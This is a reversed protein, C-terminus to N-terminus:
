HPPRLPPNWAEQCHPKCTWALRAIGISPITVAVALILYALRREMPRDLGAGLHRSWVWGAAAAIMGLVPAALGWFINGLAAMDGGGPAVEVFQALVITAIMAGAATWYAVVNNRDRRGVLYLAVGAPGDLVAFPLAEALGRCHCPAVFLAAIM